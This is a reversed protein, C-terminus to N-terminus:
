VDYMCMGDIDVCLVYRRSICRTSRRSMRLLNVIKKDDDDSTEDDIADVMDDDDDDSNDDGADIFMRVDVAPLVNLLAHTGVLEIAKIKYARAADEEADFCGM